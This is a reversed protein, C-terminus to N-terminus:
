MEGMLHYRTGIKSVICKLGDDNDGIIIFQNFDGRGRRGVGLASTVWTKLGAITPEHEKRFSSPYITNSARGQYGEYRIYPIHVEASYYTQSDDPKMIKIEMKVREM